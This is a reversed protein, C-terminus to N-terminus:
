RVIGECTLPQRVEVGFGLVVLTGKGPGKGDFRAIVKRVTGPPDYYGLEVEHREDRVALEVAELCVRAPSWRLVAFGASGSAVIGHLTGQALGIETDFPLVVRADDPQPACRPDSAAALGDLSALRKEPGLTGRDPDLPALVANGGADVAVVVPDKGRLGAALDFRSAGEPPHLLGLERRAGAIVARGPTPASRPLEVASVAQGGGNGSVLLARSGHVVGVAPDDICGGIPLTLGADDVLSAACRGMGATAVARVKTGDLVYGLRIEYPHFPTSGLRAIPITARVIPAALDLLPVYAVEADGTTGGPQPGSWPIFMGGTFGIRGPTLRAIPTKTYGLGFSEPIRKGEGLGAYRCALRVLPPEPIPRQYEPNQRPPTTDEPAPESGDNWGIRVFTGVQCGIESCSMPEASGGSPPPAVLRFSRGYDTTEFLRETETRALGFRGSTTVSLTQAPFAHQRPRGEADITVAALNSPSHASPLWGEITGDPTVHLARTLLASTESSYTTIDLPPENRGVRVVRLAGRVTVRPAGHLFTGPIAVLAVAAGEARPIWAVVDSADAPALRHEVWVGPGKRVCFVPSRQNSANTPSASAVVDAPSGPAPGECPGVFGLAEGDAVVFRDWTPADPLDFTREIRRGSPLDLVTARNHSECVLLAGDKVRLPACTDEATELALLATARGTRLDVRAVASETVTLADGELWRMGYAAAADLPSQAADEPWFDDLEPPPEHRRPGQPARDSVIAGRADVLRSEEGRLKVHLDEGRVEIETADALEASVDRFTAGGDVTLRAHGFVTLVLARRADAALGTAFGPLDLKRPPGGAPSVVFVGAATVLGVGDIWDFTSQVTAPLKGLSRAEGLWAAAGFVEREKWLVYRAPATPTASWPPAAAAGDFDATDKARAIVDAGRAEVRRGGALARDVGAETREIWEAAGPVVWRPPGLVSARSAKEEVGGRAAEEASPTSPTPRAGTCSAAAVLLACASTLAARKM